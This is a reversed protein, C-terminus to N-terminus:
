PLLRVAPQYKGGERVPLAQDIRVNVEQKEGAELALDDLEAVTEDTGRVKSATASDEAQWVLAVGLRAHDVRNQGQNVLDASVRYIVRCPNSECSVSDRHIEINELSLNDVAPAEITQTLEKLDDGWSCQVQFESIDATKLVFTVAISEERKIQPGSFVESLMKTQDEIVRGSKLGRVAVGVSNPSLETLAKVLVKVHVHGEQKFAQSVEVSVPPKSGPASPAIPARLQASCASLCVVWIILLRKM